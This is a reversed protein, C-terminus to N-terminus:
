VLRTHKFGNVVEEGRPLELSMLLKGMLLAISRWEFDESSM